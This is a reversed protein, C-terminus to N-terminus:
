NQITIKFAETEGFLDAHTFWNNSAKKDINPQYGEREVNSGLFWSKKLHLLNWEGPVTSMM